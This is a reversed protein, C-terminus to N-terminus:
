LNLTHYHLREAKVTNIVFSQGSSPMSNVLDTSASGPLARM